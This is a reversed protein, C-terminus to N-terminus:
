AEPVAEVPPHNAPMEAVPEGRWEAIRQRLIGEIEPPPNLGSLREWRSAALDPDGRNFAGIGGYFLAKQSNEDIALANEFLSAIRGEIAGGTGALLSEGLAVLMEADQGGDLKVVQEFAAVADAFNSVAMYSRGLMKWGELDDPNKKLKQALSALADSVDAPGSGASPADPSGTSDYLGVSIAVMVVVAVAMIPTLKKQQRFLPTVVFGIAVLAMVAFLIWLTM